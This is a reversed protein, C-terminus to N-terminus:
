VYVIKLVFACFRYECQKTKIELNKKGELEAVLYYLKVFYINNWTYTYKEISFKRDMSPLLTTWQHNCHPGNIIVTHDMTPLLPTWEHSRRAM